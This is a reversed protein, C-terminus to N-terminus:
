KLTVKFGNWKPDEKRMKILLCFWEYGGPQEADCREKIFSQYTKFVKERTLFYDALDSISMLAFQKRKKIDSPFKEDIWKEFKDKQYEKDKALKKTQEAARIKEDEENKFPNKIITNHFHNM